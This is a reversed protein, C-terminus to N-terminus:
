RTSSRSVRDAGVATATSTMSADLRAGSVTDDGGARWVFYPLSMTRQAVGSRSFVDIQPAGGGPGVYIEGDVVAVGYYASGPLAFSNSVFGSVPDIELVTSAGETVILADPGTIGALGGMLNTVAPNLGDIDLVDTVTDSVPDFQLIDSWAYDLIYVRGRLAALGDYGGSGVTLLDADVVAGTDPNLEWLTDWGNLFFLSSGNFALGEAGGSVPAPAAFRNTEAATAPDLEVIDDSGDNPVAFLRAAAGGGGVNVTASAGLQGVRITGFTVGDEDDTADTDDGDAAATPQGDAELDRLSGLTPGALVHRAGDDARITAYPSPADGFDFAQDGGGIDDGGLARFSTLCHCRVNLWAM